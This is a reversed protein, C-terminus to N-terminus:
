VVPRIDPESNSAHLNLAVSISPGGDSMLQAALKHIVTVEPPAESTLDVLNAPDRYWMVELNESRPTSRYNGAIVGDVNQMPFIYFEFQALLDAAEATGSLLYDIMGELLFSPPTEAPHTRAHIFIRKKASVPVSPDTITVQYVPKGQQSYGPIQIDVCSYGRITNLYNELDQFTYPFFRAIWVTHKKFQNRITIEYEGTKTVEEENFHHWTKQDYSYVPVYYFPWGSNKIILETVSHTSAHELKVYWWSRWSDPLSADNNDDAISLERINDDISTVEGISGSEFNDSISVETNWPIDKCSALILTLFV